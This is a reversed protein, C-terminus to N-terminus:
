DVAKLAEVMDVQKLKFHMVVMVITAFIFSLVFSYVYSTWHIQPYFLLDNTQMTKMIFHTLLTGLGLGMLSGLLTLILVENFIYRSVEYDYFGLVKITSLERLRESVNINTLNYLVIFSLSAASIILVITILDLSWMADTVGQISQGMDIFNLVDSDDSLISEIESGDANAEYLLLYANTSPATGTLQQYQEPLLYLYHQAYNMAITPHHLTFHQYDSDIFEVDGDGHYDLREALRETIMPGRALFSQQSQRDVTAIFPQIEEETGGLVMLNAKDVQDNPLQVDVGEQYIPLVQQVGSIARFKDAREQTISSDDSDPTVVIADYKQVRDFQDVVLGNITDSIGYGTLILMTCGAIGVITMLNRGKYRLLNRITMQQYFGFRSWIWDVREILTRKGAPPAEPILLNSPAGQLMKRGNLIAPLLATLLAAVAAILVWNWQVPVVLPELYYMINYARLIVQPFVAYGILTGAIVALVGALGSYTTFKNIITMDPYGLQKMTGMYNRQENTMRKITTYTVLVAVLTFFLPFINSIVHLQHANDEITRYSLFDNRGGIHYAPGDSDILDKLDARGEALKEEAEKLDAEAEPLSDEYEQRKSELKRQGEQLTAEKENLTQQAADLQAAADNLQQRGSELEGQRQNLTNLGAQYEQEGQSLKAEGDQIEQAAQELQALGAAEEEELQHQGADLEAQGAELQELGEHYQQWGAELQARQTALEQGQTLLTQIASALQSATAPDLQEFQYIDIQGALLGEIMEDPIQGQTAQQIVGYLQNRGEIWQAEGSDLEAQGESLTEYTQALQDRGQDLEAQKAAIESRAQVIRDSLEESGQDYAAQAEELQRRSDDLQKRADALEQWGEQIASEGSAIEGQSNRWKELNAAFQEKGEDLKAQGSALEDAAEDLQRQADRLTERGEELDDEGSQLESEAEDILSQHRKDPQDKLLSELQAKITSQLQDDEETYPLTEADNVWYYGETYLDSQIADDMLVAFGYTNNRRRIREMYLSSNAYGVIKYRRQTLEFQEQLPPDFKVWEGLAAPIGEEILHDVIRQDLVVEDSNEVMRGQTIEFMQPENRRHTFLEARQQTETLNAQATKTWAWELEDVQGLLDLDDANLGYTSVVYGAPLNGREYTTQAIKIMAPGAARVGVFFSVGLTIIAFISLFRSFSHRIERLNDKWVTSNM